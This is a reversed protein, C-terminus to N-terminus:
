RRNMEEGLWFRLIESHEKGSDCSNHKSIVTRTLIASDRSRVRRASDGEIKRSLDFSVRSAPYFYSDILNATKPRRFGASVNDHGACADWQIVRDLEDCDNSSFFINTVDAFIRFTKFKSWVPMPCTMKFIRNFCCSRTHLRSARWM